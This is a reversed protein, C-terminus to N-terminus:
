WGPQLDRRATFAHGRREPTACEAACVRNHMEDWTRDWSMQALLPTARAVAARGENCMARKLGQVFADPTDAIQVLGLQGYPRVVDTISTSVVPCGAALYEPTKTPSIFRTAANRAFPLTAAKWGAFYAPLQEYPKMGLYHINPARPLVEPDIKVVPGLLVFHWDPQAAAVSALLPVDMREDIVGCFGIRPHPIYRQDEPADVLYRARQFHALDVGSPFPHVNHHHKRKAAYLSYGGTFVVDAILLLEAELKAMQPPAGAFGTLEDMCDYVVTSPYLTWLLPLMMPTYLWATAGRGARGGFFARLMDRLATEAATAPTGRTLHPVVVTVGDEMSAELWGNDDDFVPEEIFFVRRTRAARIMLHQPRQFVFRWRLHSFCVLDNLQAPGSSHTV